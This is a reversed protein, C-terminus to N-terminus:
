QNKALGHAMRLLTTTGAEGGESTLPRLLDSLETMRGSSFLASREAYNLIARQEDESLPIPMTRIGDVFQAPGENSIEQEHIVLTGAAIDGLRKFDKECLMSILGVVYFAPLFDAARLLNRVVSTDWGIPTGDDNIVRLGILNKGPTKGQALVEFAVPYFWELLFLLVLFIGAGMEGFYALGMSMGALLGWRILCDIVYAIVRAPPGAPSIQLDIGEPTELSYTTDIM